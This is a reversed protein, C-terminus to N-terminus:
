EENLLANTKKQFEAIEDELYQLAGLAKEMRPLENSEFANAISDSWACGQFETRVKQQLYTYMKPNM